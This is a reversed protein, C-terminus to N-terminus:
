ITHSCVDFAKKLDLFLGICFNGKNLHMGVQNVVQVLNQETNKGSQFGYHNPNILKNFELHRTLRVHVIKELIKSISRLLSNPRYKSCQSQDGGKFIPVVRSNRLAKPFKGQQLSLSFIHAL